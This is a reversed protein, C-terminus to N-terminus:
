MLDTLADLRYNIVNIDTTLMKDLEVFDRGNWSSDKIKILSGINLVSLFDTNMM